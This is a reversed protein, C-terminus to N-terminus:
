LVNPMLTQHSQFLIRWRVQESVPTRDGFVVWGGVLGAWFPDMKGGAAVTTAAGAAKSGRSQAWCLAKYIVVFKALNSAHIRTGKLITSLRKPWPASSFLLAM